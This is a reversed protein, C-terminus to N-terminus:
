SMPVSPPAATKPRLTRAEILELRRLKAISLRSGDFSTAHTAIEQLTPASPKDTRGKCPSGLASRAKAPSCRGIWRSKQSLWAQKVFPGLVSPDNWIAKSLYRITTGVHRLRLSRSALYRYSVADSWRYVMSPIEPHRQRVEDMLKRHCKEIRFYNHSTSGGVIRYRVLFEPVVRFEYREAIRLFMEKDELGAFEPRYGGCEELSRRRILAVSGSALFNNCLLKLFVSGEETRASYGGTLAGAENMYLTWAYVVGTCLGAEQMCDVQKSLKEPDWVDDADLTAIFEGSSEAFARNRAESPGMNPQVFLRIRPDSNAYERVIEATRDTSGDDVIVVELNKYTQRLVSELTLAIFRDANYAAINVSVLPRRMTSNIKWIYSASENGAM